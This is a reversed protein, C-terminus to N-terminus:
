LTREIPLLREAGNIHLEGHVSRWVNLCAIQRVGVAMLARLVDTLGLYLDLAWCSAANNTKWHQFPGPHAMSSPYFALILQTHHTSIFGRSIVVIGEGTLSAFTPQEFVATSFKLVVNFLYNM